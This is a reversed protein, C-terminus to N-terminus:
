ESGPHVTHMDFIGLGELEEGAGPQYSTGFLQYGGCVALVPMDSEVADLLEHRKERLDAAIRAQERDQGGGIFVMDYQRQDLSSDIGLDDIVLHIQRDECRRKLCLINGRDGYLNMLNPYLHALRLRFQM